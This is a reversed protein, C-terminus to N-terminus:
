LRPTAASSTLISCSFQLKMGPVTNMEGTAPLDRKGFEIRARHM